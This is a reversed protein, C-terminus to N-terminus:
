MLHDFLFFITNKYLICCQIGQDCKGGYSGTDCGFQCEGDIHHCQERNTCNGCSEKCGMGYTNESCEKCSLYVLTFRIAMNCACLM